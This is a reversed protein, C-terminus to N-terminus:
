RYTKVTRVTVRLGDSPKEKFALSVPNDGARLLPAPGSLKGSALTSGDTGLTEWTQGDRSRLRQGPYLRVPVSLQSEGVTLIPTELYASSRIAKIDDVACLVGTAAPLGNYFLLLYEIRALDLAPKDLRHEIYRWGSFTVPTVMDHWKGATDRLQVKFSQGRGDGRLWFGIAAAGALDLPPDFRRGIAAWGARDGRTSTANFTLAGDASKADAKDAGLAFTVGPKATGQNQSDFAYKAYQNTASAAFREPATGDDLLLSDPGAYADLNGGAAIAEIEWELAPPAERGTDRAPISWRNDTGDTRTVIRPLDYERKLYTEDVPGSRREGFPEGLAIVTVEARASGAAPARCAFRLQNSGAALAPLSGDLAFRGLLEGRADYHAGGEPGEVELYHGSLLSVPFTVATGNVALSPNVLEVERVPLAMIPSILVDVARGPPIENLYLNVESVHATVVPNRYIAHSGFGGGYPWVYDTLRESDRERLLLEVYRWGTFDLDVYHDSICGNYERPSCIQLNLLAGSGDGKVWLGMAQGPAMSFYPHTYAMGVKAWAGRATSGSNNATFRLSRGGAKTDTTVVAIAHKVGPAAARSTFAAADKFDALAVAQPDDYPAAAYLAEVRVRLPQAAHPNATAWAESGNGMATVRHRALNAPTFKWHGASDLRLRFDKGPEGVRELTAPDFYRALRLKEHWGLLTFMEEQRANPPQSSVNVGQISMPGDIALNKAAFYEMEDPFHGRAISSPGRPSWWGLQPELLDTLRYRSALRIHQDHFQRMAWVPHDWAGLRSHFWWNNHGHCSSESVGGKLRQFIQWRMADIGYRSGMGESGDFYLMDLGCENYVKAIADALEAALPSDPQPYFAIYRQLLYDVTDGAAHAAPATGFAGRECDLFAYPPTRSIASYRIIETGLRLANGNGSYSWILDHSAVPVEKVPISKDTAAVPAALTYSAAAILHPSPVPTVWADRPDICATLTHTGARLGAAHIRAVVEKMEALGGPFDATRPEYHGLTKWWGHLHIYGFGGRRALEIWADTDKAALDAFLYSGRTAESVMAWPGGHLSKPVKETDALHQLMEILRERPGAALGVRHGTLGHELTTSARFLPPKGAFATDVGLSLSRLCVGSTDDSALGAMQGLYADPAPAIQFFTFRVAEPVALAAATVTFTQADAELRIAASGQSRPFEAVLLGEQLRLRRAQLTRGSKLGVALIPCPAALLERNTGKERLSLVTANDGIALSAWRTELSLLTKADNAGPGAPEYAASERGVPAALAAVEDPALARRYIRLDDLLGNHCTEGNWCGFRIDGSQGVPYDWGTAQGVKRGNVYTTINPRQFVAALHVWQRLPIPRLLPASTERWEQGPAGARHGPRGMRFYCTDQSVCIMFGGPSWTGGHILNPYSGTGEWLVWAALTMENAGDLEPIEPVTGYSSTGSFKLATGFAGKVWNANSLAMEGGGLGSDQCFGGSGEDCKWWGVLAPDVEQGLAAVTLSFSLVAAVGHWQWATM